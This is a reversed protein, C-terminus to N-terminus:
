EGFSDRGSHAYLDDNLYINKNVDQFKGVGLSHASVLAKVNISSGLLGNDSLFKQRAKYAQVEKNEELAAV